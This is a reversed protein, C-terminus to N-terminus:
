KGFLVCGHVDVVDDGIEAFVFEAPLHRQRLTEAQKEIGHQKIAPPMIRSEGHIIEEFRNEPMTLSAEYNILRTSTSM